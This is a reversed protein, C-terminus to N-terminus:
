GWGWGQLWSDAVGFSGNAKWGKWGWWASRAVGGGSRCGRLAATVGGSMETRLAKARRGCNCRSQSPCRLEIRWPRQGRSGRTSFRWWSFLYWDGGASYIRVESCDELIKKDEKGWSKPEIGGRSRQVGSSKRPKSTNEQLKSADKRHSHHSNISSLV